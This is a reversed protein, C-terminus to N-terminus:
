DITLNKDRNNDLYLPSSLVWLEVADRKSTVVSSYAIDTDLHISDGASIIHIKGDIIYEVRGELLYCFEEGKQKLLEAMHGSPRTIICPFFNAGKFGPGLKQYFRQPDGLNFKKRDKKKSVIEYDNPIELLEDVTSNLAKALKFFSTLSPACLNREVQSIFGVSLGTERAVDRMTKGIAKRRALLTEGLLGSKAGDKFKKFDLINNSM